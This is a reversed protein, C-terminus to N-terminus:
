GDGGDEGETTPIVVFTRDGVELQEDPDHVGTLHTDGCSPCPLFAWAYDEPDFPQGDDPQWGATAETIADAVTRDDASTHDDGM